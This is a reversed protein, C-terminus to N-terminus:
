HLNYYPALYRWLQWPKDEIFELDKKVRAHFAKGLWHHLKQQKDCKFRLTQFVLDLDWFLTKQVENYWFQVSILPLHHNESVVRRQLDSHYLYQAQM